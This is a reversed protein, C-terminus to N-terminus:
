SAARTGAGAPAAYRRAIATPEAFGVVAIVLAGVILSPALHWPLDLDLRPWATTFTGVEPGFAGPWIWAV